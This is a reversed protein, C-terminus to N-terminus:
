VCSYRVVINTELHEQDAQRPRMPPGFTGFRLYLYIISMKIFGVILYYTAEIALTVKLQNVMQDMTLTSGPFGIKNEKQLLIELMYGVTFFTAIVITYDDMGPNRIVFFRLIIRMLVALVIRWLNWMLM